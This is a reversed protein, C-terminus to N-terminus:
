RFLGPSLPATVRSKGGLSGTTMRRLASSVRAGAPIVLDGLEIGFTMLGDVLAIGMGIVRASATNLERDYPVPLTDATWYGPGPHDEDDTEYNVAHVLTIQGRKRGFQALQSTATRQLEELSRQAGLTLAAEKRPHGVAPTIGQLFYGLEGGDNWALWFSTAETRAGNVTLSGINSEDFTITRPDGRTSHLYPDVVIEGTDFDFWVHIDCYQETLERLIFTSLPGTAKTSVDATEPWASSNADLSDTGGIRVNSLLSANRAQNEEIAIRIIERPTFGPPSAPFEVVQWDTDTYLVLEVDNGAADIRWMELAFDLPGEGSQVRAWMRHPGATAVFPLTEAATGYGKTQPILTVGDLRCDMIQNDAVARVVYYDTDDLEWASPSIFYCYGSPADEDVDYGNPAIVQVTDPASMADGNSGIGYPPNPYLAQVETVSGYSQATPQGTADWAPDSSDFIREAGAPKAGSGRPPSVVGEGLVAGLSRLQYTAGENAEGGPAILVLDPVDIVFSCVYTDRVFVHLLRDEVMWDNRDSGLPLTIYGVGWDALPDHGLFAVPAETADDDSTFAAEPNASPGVNSGDRETILFRWEM